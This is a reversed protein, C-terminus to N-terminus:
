HMTTMNLTEHDIDDRHEEIFRAWMEELAKGEEQTLLRGSHGGKWNFTPIAKELEDTTIMPAREPDLIVNPLMDMYFTQRGRGSWDDLEYPNSDFIGSMVIGTGGSGCCVLYFKDGIKARDHEWVSWNFFDSLMYPISDTHDEMTVNSIDPNWMLIVTNQGEDHGFGPYTPSRHIKQSQLRRSDKLMQRVVDATLEGDLMFQYEDLMEFVDCPIIKWLERFPLMAPCRECDESGDFDMISFLDAYSIYDFEGVKGEEISILSISKGDRPDESNPDPIVIRTGTDTKDKLMWQMDCLYGELENAEEEDYKGYIDIDMSALFRPGICFPTFLGNMVVAEGGNSILAKVVSLSSERQMEIWEADYHAIAKGGVPIEDDNEDYFEGGTIDVVADIVCAFLQYDAVSSMSCVRVEYGCDEESVEVGRIAEDMTGFKLTPFEGSIVVIKEGKDVLRDFLTGPEFTKDTKVSACVSM